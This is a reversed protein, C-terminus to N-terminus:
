MELLSLFQHLGNQKACKLAEPTFNFQILLNCRLEPNEVDKQILSLLNEKLKPNNAVIQFLIQTWKEAISKDGFEFIKRILIRIKRYNFIKKSIIFNLSPSPDVDLSNAIKLAFDFLNNKFLLILSKHIGVDFLYIDDEEIVIKKEKLIDTFENQLRFVELKKVEPPIYFFTEQMIQKRKPINEIYKYIQADLATDYDCLTYAIDFILFYLKYKQCYKLSEILCNLSNQSCQIMKNNLLTQGGIVNFNFQKDFVEPFAKQLELYNDASNKFVNLFSMQHSIPLMFGRKLVPIFICDIFLSPHFQFQSFAVLINTLGEYESIAKLYNYKDSLASFYFQYETILSPPQNLKSNSDIDNYFNTKQYKQFKQQQYPISHTDMVSLLLRDNIMLSDAFHKMQSPVDTLSSQYKLEFETFIISKKLEYIINNLFEEPKKILNRKEDNELHKNDQDNNNLITTLIQKAEDFKFLRIGNLIQSKMTEEEWNEFFEIAHGINNRLCITFLRQKEKENQISNYSYIIGFKSYFGIQCLEKLFSLLKLKNELSKQIVSQNEDSQINYELDTTDTASHLKNIKTLLIKCCLILCIQSIEAENSDILIYPFQQECFDIFMQQFKQSQRCTGVYSDFLESVRCVLRVRLDVPIDLYVSKQMVYHIKTCFSLVINQIENEIYKLVKELPINFKNTVRELMVFNHTKILDFLMENYDNNFEVSNFENNQGDTGNSTLYFYIKFCLSDNQLDTAEALFISRARINDRLYVSLNRFIKAHFSQCALMSDKISEKNILKHKIVETMEDGFISLTNLHECFRRAEKFQNSMILRSIRIRQSYLSVIDGFLSNEDDIMKLYHVLELLKEAEENHDVFCLAIELRESLENLKMTEKEEILFNIAEIPNDGFELEETRMSDVKRDYDMNDLKCRSFGNMNSNNNNSKNCINDYFRILPKSANQPLIDDRYMLLQQPSQTFLSITFSAIPMKNFVVKNIDNDVIKNEIIYQFFNINTRGAFEFALEFNREMMLRKMTTKRDMTYLIEPSKAGADIYVNIYSLFNNLYPSNECTHFSAHYENALLNQDITRVDPLSFLEMPNNLLLRKESLTKYRFGTARLNKLKNKNETSTFGLEANCMMSGDPKNQTINQYLFFFEKLKDSIQVIKDAIEWNNSLIASHVISESPKLIDRFTKLNAGICAIKNQAFNTYRSLQPDKSYKQIIPILERASNLDILFSRGKKLFLLSFLDVLLGQRISNDPLMQICEIIISIMDFNDKTAQNHTLMTRIAIYSFIFPADTSTHLSFLFDNDLTMLSNKLYFILSSNDFSKLTLTEGFKREVTKITQILNNLFGLYKPTEVKKAGKEYSIFKEDNLSSNCEFYSLVIPLFTEIFQRNYNDNLCIFFPVIVCKKFVSFSTEHFFSEISGADEEMFLPEILQNIIDIFSHNSKIFSNIMSLLKENKLNGKNNMFRILKKNKTEISSQFSYYFMKEDFNVNNIYNELLISEKDDNENLSAKLFNNQFKFIILKLPLDFPQIYPLIKNVDINSLMKEQYETLFLFLDRNNQILWLINKFLVSPAVNEHVNLFEFLKQTYKCSSLEHLLLKQHNFIQTHFEYRNSFSHACFQYHELTPIDKNTRVAYLPKEKVLDSLIKRKTIPTMQNFFLIALSSHCSVLQRISETINSSENLGIYRFFHSM